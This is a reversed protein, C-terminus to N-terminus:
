ARRAPVTPRTANAPPARRSRSGAVRFVMPLAVFYVAMLGLCVSAIIARAGQSVPSPGVGAEIFAALFTLVAAAAALPIFDDMVRRLAAARGERGPRLMAMGLLLGAAGSLVLGALEFPSHATVFRLISPGHGMATVYGMVGGISIGNEVLFFLPGVGLFVGTAMTMFDISVNNSIYFSLMYATEPTERGDFTASGHAAAMQALTAPNVLRAAFDPSRLSVSLSLAFPVAFLAAAAVLYRWRAAIRAPMERLVIDPLAGPPLPPMSYIVSRAEAVLANVYGTVDESYGAGRAAALDACASRYLAIFAGSESAPLTGGRTRVRELMSELAGLSSQRRDAFRTSAVPLHARYLGGLFAVADDSEAPPPLGIREAAKAALARATAAAREPPMSARGDLFSRVIFLEREGLRSGRPPEVAQWDRMFRDGVLPRRVASREDQVVITGAVIDGLRRSYRDAVSVFGGLVPVLMAPLGDAARLLNRLALTKADLVDGDSRVVRIRFALKGPTRGGLLCEFAFGYGWQMVFLLIVIFAYSALGGALRSVFGFFALFVIVFAVGQILADVLFAAARTASEAIRYAFQVREPTEIVITSQKM